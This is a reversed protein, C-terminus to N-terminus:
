DYVSRKLSDIALMCGNSYVFHKIYIASGEGPGGKEVILETKFGKMRTKYRM